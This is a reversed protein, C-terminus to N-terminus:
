PASLPQVERVSVIPSTDLPSGLGAHMKETLVELLDHVDLPKTLYADAGEALLREFQGTTADASLIIIPIGATAPDERLLRLVEEGRLDPLHLDLLIAAPHHDRALSIGLRGQMAGIVALDDHDSLIREVLRLNSPNDEIHLVKLTPSKRTSRTGDRGATTGNVRDYQELPGESLPVEVSFRSGVGYTSEVSITGGMAEALRLSLALGVGTGPVDTAEAGIRDFPVFIRDLDAARIGPGTDAVGIRACGDDVDCSVTVVGGERNYKIANSILNLLIQKLRQRDALVHTGQTTGLDTVVDINREGAVPSMLSLADAVVEAVQVPESSLTMTGAEIRSIDLVENILGLLHRGGKLIQDVAERQGEELDDLELLQGFGIVANLPTRLEHSM